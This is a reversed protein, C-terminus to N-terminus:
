HLKKLDKPNVQRAPENKILIHEPSYKARARIIMTSVDDIDIVAYKGQLLHFYKSVEYESIAIDRPIDTSNANATGTNIPIDFEM